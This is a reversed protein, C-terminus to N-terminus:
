SVNRRSNDSALLLLVDALRAAADPRALSRAAAAMSARRDRDGLLKLLESQLREPTAESQAILVAAGADALVRANVTQEDGGAGPLPILISPLGVLALEAVTGAGARGVVIDAAAYVDALEDRVFEVIRYRRQLEVPMADRRSHLDAADSNASAPGTQHLLQTQGLIAPLLDSMRQNIPSAGRAGGTVYTMPLSDDFGFRELGKGRDGTTLESRVPNGTLAVRRHIRRAEEASQGHSIALVAAFRANIRTALGIIATQEHTLVPAVGRAAVVTPVSVFGGTSLVADPAFRRLASRAAIVGLPFRAADTVNKISLYRRLKATPIPVFDIGRQTAADREVGDHSGIWVIEAILDRRQLEGVVALAPLVHGGTGGGAIALRIGKRGTSVNQVGHQTLEALLISALSASANIQRFLPRPATISDAM